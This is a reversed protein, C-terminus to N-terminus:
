IKSLIIKLFQKNKKKLYLQLFLHVLKRNISWDILRQFNPWSLKLKDNSILTMPAPAHMQKSSVKVLSSHFFKQRITLYIM